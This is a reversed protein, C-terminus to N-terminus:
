SSTPWRIKCPTAAQGQRVAQGPSVLLSMLKGPMPAVLGGAAGEADGAGRTPDMDLSVVEWGHQKYVAGVSGTGSFLDLLRPRGDRQITQIFTREEEREKQIIEKAEKTSEQSGHKSVDALSQSAPYAWRSMADAIINDKGPIYKVEIQFRSLTEHWRGRRAAPGSPTDVHEKTWNELSKHDTLVLVPQLGMWGAWKRLAMIIAYTEQERPTWNRKSATLKRSCLCVPVLKGNLEQELVAGIAYGSADTRLTFPKDVQIQFLSLDKSLAQKLKNFADVEGQDWLLMKQSGKKGDERNLQLKSQLPAAFKAYNEL